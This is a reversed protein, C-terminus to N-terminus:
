RKIQKKRPGSILRPECRVGLNASDFGKPGLQMEM